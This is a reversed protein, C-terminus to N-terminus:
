SLLLKHNHNLNVYDITYSVISGSEDRVKKLWIAAKCMNRKTTKKRKRDGGHKYFKCPGENICNLWKSEHRERYLKVGFGVKLGYKAFCIKAEQATKFSM